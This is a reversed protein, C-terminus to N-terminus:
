QSGTCLPSRVLPQIRFEGRNDKHQCKIRSSIHQAEPLDNTVRIIIIAVFVACHGGVSVSHISSAESNQLSYIPQWCIHMLLKKGWNLSWVAMACCIEIYQLSWSLKISLNRSRTELWLQLQGPFCCRSNIEPNSLHWAATEGWRPTVKMLICNNEWFLFLDRKHLMNEHIALHLVWTQVDPMQGPLQTISCTVTYITM